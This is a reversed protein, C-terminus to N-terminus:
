INKIFKTLSTGKPINMKKRLSSRYNDVSASGINLQLAIQKSTHNLRVLTAIKREKDTLNSYLSHIKHNFSETTEDIESYLQAKEKNQNIDDNIFLILDSIQRSSEQNPTNIKKIKQKLKELLENKESIHIAFDTIQQNKFSIENDLNKQKLALVEKQALWMAKRTKNLKLQRLTIIILALIFLSTLAILLHFKTKAAQKQEQALQLEHDRNKLDAKIKLNDFEAKLVDTKQKQQTFEISDKVQIYKQNYFNSKKIDTKAYTNTLSEYVRKKLNITETKNLYPIAENLLAIAKSTNNHKNAVEARVLLNEIILSPSKVERAYNISKTINFLGIDIKNEAIYSKGLYLYSDSLILKFNIELGIDISQLLLERAKEYEGLEYYSIGINNHCLGISSKNNRKKWIDLALQYYELAKTENKQKSYIIAIANYTNAKGFDDNMKTELELAKKLNKLAEANNEIESNIYGQLNLVDIKAYNYISDNKKPIYDKAKLIAKSAKGYNNVEIHLESLISYCTYLEQNKNPFNGKFATLLSIAKEIHLVRNNYEGSISAIIAKGKYSKALSITDKIKLAIKEIKSICIRAQIVENKFLYADTLKGLFNIRDESTINQDNLLTKLSDIKRDHDESSSSNSQACLLTSIFLCCYLSILKM